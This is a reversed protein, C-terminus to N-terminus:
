TAEKDSLVPEVQARNKGVLDGAQAADGDFRTLVRRVENTIGRATQGGSRSELKQVLLDHLLRITLHLLHRTRM